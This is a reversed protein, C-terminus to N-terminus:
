IKKDVWSSFNEIKEYLSQTEGTFTIVRDDITVFAPPKRKFFKIKRMFKNVANEVCWAVPEMSFFYQSDKLIRWQWKSGYANFPANAVVHMQLILKKRMWRKMAWTGGWHRSRSSLVGVRYDDSYVFKTILEFMGNVPEDYINRLGKWGLSYRHIVGDFDFLILKKRNKKKFMNMEEM